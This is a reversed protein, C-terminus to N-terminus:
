AAGELPIFPALADPTAFPGLADWLEAPVARGASRRERAYDLLMGALEADRRADLGQIPALASEVFLAKLVMQNWGDRDLHRAPWPNDHAIAEFVARMNTRLGRRVAARVRGDTPFLPLAKYLALQEGLDAHRLVRVLLSPLASDGAATILLARAAEDLQWREPHWGSLCREARERFAARARPDALLPDRGFRRPALGFALDFTRPERTPDSEAVAALCDELSPADDRRGSAPSPRAADLTDLTRELLLARARRRAAREADSEPPPEATGAPAGSAEASTADPLPGEATEDSAGGPGQREIAHLSM